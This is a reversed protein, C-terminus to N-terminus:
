SRRSFITSWVESDLAGPNRLYFVFLGGAGRGEILHLYYFSMRPRVQTFIYQHSESAVDYLIQAIAVLPAATPFLM